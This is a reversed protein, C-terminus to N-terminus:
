QKLRSKQETKKKNLFLVIRISNRLLLGCNFQNCDTVPSSNDFKKKM